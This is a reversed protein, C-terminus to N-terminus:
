LCNRFISEIDQQNLPVFGPLVGGACSKRAMTPIHEDNIGLATLTSTLGLTGFLFEKTKEIAERAIDMAPLSADIGFVNVGYQVYKSVTKESLCHEM